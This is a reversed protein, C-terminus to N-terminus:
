GRQNHGERQKSWLKARLRRRFGIAVSHRLNLLLNFLAM